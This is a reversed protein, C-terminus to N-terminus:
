YLCPQPAAQQTRVGPRDLGPDDLGRTDVPVKQIQPPPPFGAQFVSREPDGKGLRMESVATSVGGFVAPESYTKPLRARPRAAQTQLVWCSSAGSM